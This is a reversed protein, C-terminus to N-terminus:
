PSRIQQQLDDRPQTKKLKDVSLMGGVWAYLGQVEIDLVVMCKM